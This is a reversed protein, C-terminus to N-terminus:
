REQPHDRRQGRAAVAREIRLLAADPEPPREGREGLLGCRAGAAAGAAPGAGPLPAGARRAAPRRSGGPALLGRDGVPGLRQGKRDRRGADPRALRRTLAELAEAQARDLIREAVEGVPVEVEARDHRDRLEADARLLRHPPAEGPHALDAHAAAAPHAGGLRRDGVLRSGRDADDPEVLGVERALQASPEPIATAPVTRAKRPRGVKSLGSKSSSDSPSPRWM